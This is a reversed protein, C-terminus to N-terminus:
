SAAIDTALTGFLSRVFALAEGDDMLLKLLASEYQSRGQFGLKVAIESLASTERVPYRSILAQLDGQSVWQVLRQRESAVVSPVDFAFQIPKGAAIDSRGPLLRAVEERVSKEVAREALRQTHPSIAALGAQRARELRAVASEGTVLAYREAVRRQLESHYYLSEVAYVPIAFVGKARLRDIDVQTRGDNDVIGWARIWHLDAADRVGSVAHEVDRCSTKSIVTVQPFLLGYLPADLSQEDGEVFLLRRRAGLIERKLRDDIPAQTPVPDAQWTIGQASYHCERVLLTRAGPNDIPLMVDHTSVVFACDTRAKFLLTWLPSIISRHLHREPEDILVLTGAKLTLVEAAILLANREGDSLEAISYPASGAKTAVVEESERVSITIPLSSLRLLENIVKIPADKRALTKALELSPRFM